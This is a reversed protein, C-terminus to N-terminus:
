KAALLAQEAKHGAFECGVAAVLAAGVGLLLGPTGGVLGLGLGMATTGIVASALHAAPAIPTLSRHAHARQQYEPSAVGAALANKAGHADAALWGLALAGMVPFTLGGGGLALNLLVGAGAGAALGGFGGIKALGNGTALLAKGGGSLQVKDAPAPQAAPAPAPPTAPPLAAFRALSQLSNM